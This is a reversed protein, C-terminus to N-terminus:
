GGGGRTAQASPCRMNLYGRQQGFADKAEFGGEVLRLEGRPRGVFPEGGLEVAANAVVEHRLPRALPPRNLHAHAVQRWRRGM